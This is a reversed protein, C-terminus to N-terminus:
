PLGPAVRHCCQYVIQDKFRRLAGGVRRGQRPLALLQAIGRQRLGHALRGRGQQGQAQLTARTHGHVQFFARFVDAGHKARRRGAAHEHGDIRQELRVLHRVDQGVAVHGDEDGRAFAQRLQAGRQSGARVQPRQQQRAFRLRLGAQALQAHQRPGRHGGIHGGSAHRLRM